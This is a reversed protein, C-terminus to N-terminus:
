MATSSRAISRFGGRGKGKAWGLVARHVDAILGCVKRTKCSSNQPEHMRADWPVGPCALGRKLLNKGSLFAGFEVLVHGGGAAGVIDAVAPGIFRNRRAAFPVCDPLYRAM